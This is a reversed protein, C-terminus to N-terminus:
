FCLTKPIKKTIDIFHDASTKSLYVNQDCFMCANEMNQKKETIASLQECCEM